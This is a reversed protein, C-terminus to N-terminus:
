ESPLNPSIFHFQSMCDHSFDAKLNNNKNSVAYGDWQGSRKRYGIYDSVQKGTLGSKLKKNTLIAKAIAAPKSGAKAMSQILDINEDLLGMQNPSPQKPTSKSKNPKDSSKRKQPTNEGWEDDDNKRSRKSM